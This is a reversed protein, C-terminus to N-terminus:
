SVLVKGEKRHAIHIMGGQGGLSESHALDVKGLLAVLVEGGRVMGEVGKVTELM